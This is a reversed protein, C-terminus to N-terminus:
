IKSRQQAGPLCFGTWNFSTQIFGKFQAPMFLFVLEHKATLFGPLTCSIQELEGAKQRQADLLWIATCQANNWGSAFFEM